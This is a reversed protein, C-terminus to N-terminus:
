QGVECKREMIVYVLGTGFSHVTEASVVKSYWGAAGWANLTETLYHKGVFLERYQYRTDGRPIADDDRPSQNREWELEEAREKAAQERQAKRLSQM